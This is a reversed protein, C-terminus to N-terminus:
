KVLKSNKALIAEAIIWDREDDINVLYKKEMIYPVSPKCMISMSQVLADIKTIYISGNRYYVPPIDQRRVAEWQPFLSKLESNCDTNYMRAPHLDDLLTVSILSNAGSKIMKRIAEEVHYVERFPSTPQLIVVYDYKEGSRVEAQHIEYIIADVVNASDTALVGPRKSFSVGTEAAKELIEDSDSSVILDDFLSVRQAVETTYHILPKGNLPKINKGPVGKSGGRAPIIGLIKM